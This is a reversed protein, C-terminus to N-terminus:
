SRRCVANSLIDKQWNMLGLRTVLIEPDDITLAAIKSLTKHNAILPPDIGLAEAAVDRASKIREFVEPNVDMQTQPQRIKRLPWKDQSLRKAANRAKELREGRQRRKIQKDFLPWEYVSKLEESCWVSLEILKENQLIKFVPVDSEQAERERWAWFERLYALAKRDLGSAGKVRWREEHVTDAPHLFTYIMHECSEYLWGLRGKSDLEEALRKRLEPLYKVDNAAYEMMNEPLPRISWDMKQPGKALEVGFHKLVLDALGLKEYGLLQIALMTDFVRDPVFGFDDHMLKLDYAGSHLIILKGKMAEFLESANKNALPDVISIRDAANIQILCLRANYHHLGDAELDISIEEENRIREIFEEPILPGSYFEAKEITMFIIEIKGNSLPM